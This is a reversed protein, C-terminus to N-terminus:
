WSQCKVKTNTGAVGGLTFGVIEAQQDESIPEPLEVLIWNSQDWKEHGRMFSTRQMVFDIEGDGLVDKDAYGNNDKTVITRGDGLVGVCALAGDAIAVPTGVKADKLFDALDGVQHYIPKTTVKKADTWLSSTGDNYHAQIKYKYETEAKLGTM